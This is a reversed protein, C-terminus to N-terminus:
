AEYFNIIEAEIEESSPEFSRHDEINKMICDIDHLGFLMYDMEERMEEIKTKLEEQTM